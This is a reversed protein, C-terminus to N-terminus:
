HSGQAAPSLTGAPKVECEAMVKENSKLAISILVTDGAQVSRNAKELMLHYSGPKFELQDGAEVVVESVMAMRSLGNEHRTQHVMVDAFADAAAGVVVVEDSRNNRLLFYGASPSSGPLLRLWCNTAVVNSAVPMKDIMGSTERVASGHGPGQDTHGGHSAGWVSAALVSQLGVVAVLRVM